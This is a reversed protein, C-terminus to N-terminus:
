VHARGIEVLPVATEAYASAITRQAQFRRRPSMVLIDNDDPDLGSGPPNLGVYPPKDDDKYDRRWEAGLSVGAPGAWLRFADGAIRADISDVRTHGIRPAAATFAQWVGAPNRYPQDAVVAGGAVRFTYGFPNYATADTKLLAAGLATERVATLSVDKTSARTYLVGSEWSWTDFFKGKLGGVARWTNSHVQVHEPPVDKLTGTLWVISQPTGTLRATGDSNAAGTPSYFRSGYPNFPNNVNMPAFQDSGPANLQVPQRLLFASSHYFSFDGFATVRDSLDYEVDLYHDQFMFNQAPDLVELLAASPDGRFDTSM